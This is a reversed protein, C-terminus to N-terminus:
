LDAGNTGGGRQQIQTLLSNSAAARYGAYGTVSPQDPIKSLFRDLHLKFSDVKVGTIDRVAKPIM